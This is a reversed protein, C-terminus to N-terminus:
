FLSVPGLHFFHPEGATGFQTWNSCWPSDSAAPVASCMKEKEMNWHQLGLMATLVGPGPPLTTNNADM